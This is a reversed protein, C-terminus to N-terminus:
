SLHYRDPGRILEVADRLSDKGTKDSRVVLVLGDLRQSLILMDSIQLLPPTDFLLYDFRKSLLDILQGMKESALMEKPNPPREGSPLLYLGQTETRRLAKGLMTQWENEALVQGNGTM